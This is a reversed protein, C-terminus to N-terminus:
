FSYIQLVFQVTILGATLLSKGLFVEVSSAPSLMLVRLTHKEKEEAILMAQVFGGVMVLAMATLTTTGLM